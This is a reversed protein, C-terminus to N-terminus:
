RYISQNEYFGGKMLHHRNPILYVEYEMVDRVYKCNSEDDWDWIIVQVTPVYLGGVRLSNAKRFEVYLGGSFSLTEKIYSPICEFM